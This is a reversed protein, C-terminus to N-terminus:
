NHAYILRGPYKTTLAQVPYSMLKGGRHLNSLQEMITFAVWSIGQGFELTVDYYKVKNHCLHPEDPVQTNSGPSIMVYTDWRSTLRFAIGYDYIRGM